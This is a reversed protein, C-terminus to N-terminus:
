FFYSIQPNFRFKKKHGLLLDIINALTSSIWRKRQIFFEELREPAFTLAEASACYEIPFISLEAYPIMINDVIAPRIKLIGFCPNKIGDVSNRHITIM